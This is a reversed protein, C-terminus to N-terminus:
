PTRISMLRWMQQPRNFIFDVLTRQNMLYSAGTQWQMPIEWKLMILDQWSFQGAPTAPSTECIPIGGNPNLLGLPKGIGDGLIIAHNITNRFAQSVKQLVWGEIDFSSEQILDAGACAIHRITEAKIELEGLGRTTPSATRRM